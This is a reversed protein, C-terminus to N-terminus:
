NNLFITLINFFNFMIIAGFLSGFIVSWVGDYFKYLADQTILTKRMGTDSILEWVTPSQECPGYWSKYYKDAIQLAAHYHTKANRTWSYGSNLDTIIYPRM